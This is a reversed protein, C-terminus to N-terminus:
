FIEPPPVASTLQWPCMAWDSEGERRDDVNRQDYRKRIWTGAVATKAIYPLVPHEHGQKCCVGRDLRVQSPPGPRHPDANRLRHEGGDQLQWDRKTRWGFRAGSDGIFGVSLRSDNICGCDQVVAPSGIRALERGDLRADGQADEHHRIATDSLPCDDARGTIPVEVPHGHLADLCKRM